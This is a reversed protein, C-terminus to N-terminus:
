AEKFHKWSIRILTKSKKKQHWLFELSARQGHTPVHQSLLAKLPFFVQQLFELILYFTCRYGVSVIKLLFNKFSTYTLQIYPIQFHAHHLYTAMQIIIQLCVFSYLLFVSGQKTWLEAIATNQGTDIAVHEQQM